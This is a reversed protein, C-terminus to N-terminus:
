KTRARPTQSAEYSKQYDLLCLHNCRVNLLESVNFLNVLPCFYRILTLRIVVIKPIKIKLTALQPVTRLSQPWGYTSVHDMAITM